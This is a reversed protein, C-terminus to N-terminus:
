SHRSHLRLSLKLSTFSMDALSRKSPNKSVRRASGNASGSKVVQCVISKNQSAIKSDYNGSFLRQAINSRKPPYECQRSFPQRLAAHYTSLLTGLMIPDHIDGMQIQPSDLLALFDDMQNYQDTNRAIPLRTGQDCRWEETGAIKADHDNDVDMTHSSAESLTVRPTSEEITASSATSAASFESVSRKRRVLDPVDLDDIDMGQTVPAFLRNEECLCNQTPDSACVPVCICDPDCICPMDPGGPANLKKAREDLNYPSVYSPSLRGQQRVRHPTDPTPERDPYSGRFGASMVVPRYKEALSGFIMSCSMSQTDQLGEFGALTQLEQRQVDDRSINPMKDFRLQALGVNWSSKQGHSLVNRSRSHDDRIHKEIVGKNLIAMLEGNYLIRKFALLLAQFDSASISGLMDLRDCHYVFYGDHPSAFGNTLLIDIRQLLEKLKACTAYYLDELEALRLFTIDFPISAFTSSTRM